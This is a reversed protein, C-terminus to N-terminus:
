FPLEKAEIPEHTYQKKGPERGFEGVIHGEEGQSRLVYKYTVLGELGVPGRAHIRGTSIGVEAGFGYRFGDAFRTSANVFVGASDVGRVFTSGAPTSETVICDTHHSGHENIHAIAAALSPVTRVALTLSLHETTYAKPPAPLVHTQFNPHDDTKKTPSSTLASLTPEDCLLKVNVTLLAEAVDPWITELLSQHVLLTEVANCAAPYDIKADVVVRKAKERDASEDLYIACLGDAHGMVPIRTSHQIERVLANSGRPIVLDIYRDQSLLATVEARTEVTQIFSEPLATRALAAQITRALEAATRASEKGGKLIAANGSKLALAAINVIVEPRAEFIVLLVGIPCSVRYLDLNDHLARAYTITGTPDPLSAIDTVGQLMTDWKEGKRLDLRKLLPSALRGAAAEAEAHAMDEGNARLISDKNAELEKRIEHLTRTRETASILQSAEFAAKAAQAITEASLSM